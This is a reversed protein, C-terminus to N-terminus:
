VYCTYCLENKNQIFFLIKEQKKHVSLVKEKVLGSLNGYTELIKFKLFKCVRKRGDLGGSLIESSRANKGEKRM